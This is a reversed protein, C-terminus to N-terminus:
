EFLLDFPILFLCCFSYHLYSLSLLVILQRLFPVLMLKIKILFHSADQLLSEYLPHSGPFVEGFRLKGVRFNQCTTM